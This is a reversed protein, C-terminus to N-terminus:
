LGFFDKFDACLNKKYRQAIAPLFNQKASLKWVWVIAIIVKFDTSSNIHWMILFTKRGGLDM